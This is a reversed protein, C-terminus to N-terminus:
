GEKQPLRADQAMSRFDAFSPADLRDASEYLTKRMQLLDHILQLSQDDDRMGQLLQRYYQEFEEAGKGEWAKCLKAGQTELTTRLNEFANCAQQLAGLTEEFGETSVVNFGVDPFLFPEPRRIM